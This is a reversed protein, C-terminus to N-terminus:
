INFSVFSTAKLLTRMNHLTESPYNVIYTLETVIDTLSAAMYISSTPRISILAPVYHM